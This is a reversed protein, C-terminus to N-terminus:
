NAKSDFVHAVREKMNGTEDGELPAAAADTLAHVVYEDGRLDITVTGPTLTISNALTTRALGNPLPYVFRFLKPRIDLKPSLVLKAVQLSSVFIQGFLWPLYALMRLWPFVAFPHRGPEALPPDLAYLYCSGLAIAVSCLFGAGLHFADFKGSLVVWFAFLPLVLVLSEHFPPRKSTESDKQM